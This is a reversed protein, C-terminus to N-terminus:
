RTVSRLVREAAIVQVPESKGVEPLIFAVSVLYSATVPKDKTVEDDGELLEAQVGQVTLKGKESTRKYVMTYSLYGFVLAQGGALKVAPTRNENAVAAYEVVGVEGVQENVTKKEELFVKTFDDLPYLKEDITAGNLRSVWTKFAEVPTVAYDKSDAKVVPTGESVKITQVQTKPFMRVWSELMYPDRATEQTILVIAPLTDAAAETGLVVARPWNDSKTVTATAQDLVLKPIQVEANNALTYYGSRMTLAPDKVRDTLLEANKAADAKNLVKTLDNLVARIQDKDLNPVEKEVTKAIKEVKPTENGCAALGASLLTVTCLNLFDRRKM